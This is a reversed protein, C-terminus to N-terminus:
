SSFRHSGAGGEGHWGLPPYRRCPGHLQSDSHGPSTHKVGTTMHYSIAKGAETLSGVRTRIFYTGVLAEPDEPSEAWFHSEDYIRQRIIAERHDLDIAVCNEVDM